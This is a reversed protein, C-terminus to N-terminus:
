ANKERKKREVIEIEINRLKAIRKLNTIQSQIDTDLFSNNRFDLVLRDGDEIQSLAKGVDAKNLFSVREAFRLYISGDSRTIRVSERYNDQIVYIMAIVVGISIGVLLDTVVVLVATVLFPIVQRAGRRYMSKIIPFSTLKYGLIILIVALSTKPILNIVPSLMLIALLIWVGHLISSVRSTAGAEINAASRVVVATIPLGGVLGALINGIGQARLERNPPTIRNKKDLQDAAEV